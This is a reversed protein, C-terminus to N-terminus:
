PYVAKLSGDADMIQVFKVGHDTGCSWITSAYFQGKEKADNKIKVICNGDTYATIDTIDAYWSVGEFNLRYSNKTKETVENDIETTITKVEKFIPNTFELELKPAGDYKDITVNSWSQRRPALDEVIIMDSGLREKGDSSYFSVQVDGTFIKESTNEVYVKLNMRDGDISDKQFSVQIDSLRAKEQTEKKDVEVKSTEVNNEAAKITNKVACIDEYFDYKATDLQFLAFAHLRDKLYFAIVDGTYADGEFIGKFKMHLEYRGTVDLKKGSSLEMYSKPVSVDIIECDGFLLKYLELFGNALAVADNNDSINYVADANLESFAFLIDQAQEVVFHVSDDEEAIIAEWNQPIEFQNGRFYVMQNTEHNFDSTVIKEVKETKTIEERQNANVCGVFFALGLIITIVFILIKRM